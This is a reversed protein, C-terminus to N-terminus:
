YVSIYNCEKRNQIINRELKTWPLSFKSLHSYITIWDDNVPQQLLSKYVKGNKIYQLIRYDGKILGCVANTFIEVLEPSDASFFQCWIYSTSIHLEDDNQLNLNIDFDLGEQKPIDMSLDVNKNNYDITMKLSPFNEQIKKFSEEAINYCRAQEM